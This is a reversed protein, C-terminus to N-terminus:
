RNELHVVADEIHKGRRSVSKEAALIKVLPDHAPHRTLKECVRSDVQPLITQRELTQLFNRFARLAIKRGRSFRGDIQRENSGVCATRFVKIFCKRSFLEFREDFIEDILRDFRTQRRKFIGFQLRGVNVFHDEDTALRPRRDNFAGDLLDKSTLGRTLDVWVLHDRHARRDLAAHQTTFYFVDHQKVHQRQTQSKFSTASQKGLDDLAVRRDRQTLTARERGDDIVLRRNLNVH